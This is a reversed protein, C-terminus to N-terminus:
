LGVRRVAPCTVLPTLVIKACVQGAATSWRELSPSHTPAPWVRVKEGRRAHERTSLLSPGGVALAHSRRSPAKMRASARIGVRVHTHTHWENAITRTAQEVHISDCCLHMDRPGPCTVLAECFLRVCRAHASLGDHGCRPFSLPARRHGCNLDVQDRHVALHPEGDSSPLHRRLRNPKVRRHTTARCALGAHNHEM